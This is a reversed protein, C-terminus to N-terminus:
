FEVCWSRVTASNDLFVVDDPFTIVPIEYDQEDDDLPIEKNFIAGGFWASNESFTTPGTLRNCM